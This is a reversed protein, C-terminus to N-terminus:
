FSRAPNGAVRAGPPVSRTVVSGPAIEAGRGIHVGKLIMVGIGVRVDDEIVVPRTEFLPRIDPNGAPSIAIADVKRLEPDVPHFDADAVLVGYSMLVRSGIKISDACMLITDVLITDNGIEVTGAPDVNFWCRGLIRVRSGLVLGQDRTSRFRKLLEPNEIWCGQGICVNSPLEASDIGPLRPFDADKTTV